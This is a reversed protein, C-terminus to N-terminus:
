TCADGRYFQGQLEAAKSNRSLAAENPNDFLGLRYKKKNYVLESAWKSTAKHWYVGKYGSTNSTPLGTNAANEMVTALRLNEKRNDLKNGNIHDVFNDNESAGTILRHMRIRDSGKGTVAYGHSLGWKCDVVRELDCTDIVARGTDNGFNDTMVVYAVDGDIIIENADFRTKAKIMGTRQLRLYHKHCLNKAHNKGTCNDITCMKAVSVHRVGASLRIRMGAFALRVVLGLGAIRGVAGIVARLCSSMETVIKLTSNAKVGSSTRGHGPLPMM